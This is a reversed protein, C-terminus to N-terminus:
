IKRAVYIIESFAHLHEGNLFMTRTDSDAKEGNQYVQFTGSKIPILNKLLMMTM